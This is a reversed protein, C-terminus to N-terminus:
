SPTHWGLYVGASVAALVASMGLLEAPIFALYGTLLSITIEAPPNDLRLRVQRIIWAVALGVGVEAQPSSSCAM